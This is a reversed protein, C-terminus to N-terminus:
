LFRPHNGGGSGVPRSRTKLSWSPRMSCRQLGSPGNRSCNRYGVVLSLCPVTNYVMFHRRDTKKEKIVDLLNWM